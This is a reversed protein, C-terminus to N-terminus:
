VAVPAKISPQPDYDRLDFDEYRAVLDAVPTLEATGFNGNQYLVVHLELEDAAAREQELAASAERGRPRAWHGPFGSLLNLSM